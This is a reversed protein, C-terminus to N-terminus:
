AAELAYSLIVDVHTATALNSGTKGITVATGADCAVFSAGDALVSVNTTDPKVVASQTLAAVAAAVLKAATTQTGLIDVTTAGSAAGGIAVLTADVLRYKYGSIAALLTHGANVEAATVRHRTTMVVNTVVGGSEVDLLGGSAVVLSNGGQKRYIKPAYTADSM